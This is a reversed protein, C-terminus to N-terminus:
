LTDLPENADFHHLLLCDGTAENECIAVSIPSIISRYESDRYLTNQLAPWLQQPFETFFNFSVFLKGKEEYTDVEPSRIPRVRQLFADRNFERAFTPQIQISICYM